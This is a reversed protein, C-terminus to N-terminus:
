GTIARQNGCEPCRDPSARLDYGCQACLGRKIRRRRRAIAAARAILPIATLLVLSWYPVTVSTHTPGSYQKFGLANWATAPISKAYIPPVKPFTQHYFNRRALDNRQVVQEREAASSVKWAIELQGGGSDADIKITRQGSASAPWPTWVWAYDRVWHSRVWLGCAAACLVASVVVFMNLLIRLLRKMM